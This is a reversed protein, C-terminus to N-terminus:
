MSGMPFVDLRSAALRPLIRCLWTFSPFRPSTCWVLPGPRVGDCQIATKRTQPVVQMLPQGCVSTTQSDVSDDGEDGEDGGDEGVLSM